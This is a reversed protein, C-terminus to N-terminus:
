SGTEWTLVENLVTLASGHTRREVFSNGPIVLPCIRQRWALCDDSFGEIHITDAWNGTVRRGVLAGDAGPAIREFQFGRLKLHDLLRMAIVLEPSNENGHQAVAREVNM